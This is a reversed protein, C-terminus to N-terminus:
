AGCGCLVLGPLDDVLESVNWSEGGDNSYSIARRSQPGAHEGCGNYPPGPCALYNRSNMVLTGDHLEAIACENTTLM